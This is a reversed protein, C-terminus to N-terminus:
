RSADVVERIAAAAPGTQQRGSTSLRALREQMDPQVIQRESRARWESTLVILPRDGLGGAAHAERPGSSFGQEALLAARMSARHALGELTAREPPTLGDTNLPMRNPPAALRMLGVASSPRLVFDPPYGLGFPVRSANGREQEWEDEHHADILVVGAVDAPYLGCYVRVNFAGFGAGALVYPPAIGAAKLLAHM